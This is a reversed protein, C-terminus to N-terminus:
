IISRELYVVHSLFLQLVESKKIIGV